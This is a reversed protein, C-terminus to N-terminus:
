FRLYRRHQGPGTLCLGIWERDVRTLKRINPSVFAVSNLLLLQFPSQMVSHFFNSNPSFGTPCHLPPTIPSHLASLIRPPDLLRSLSHPSWRQRCRPLTGVLSSVSLKFINASRYNLYRRQGGRQWLKGAPYAALSM